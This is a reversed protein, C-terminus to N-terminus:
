PQLGTEVHGSTLAQLAIVAEWDEDRAASSSQHEPLAQNMSGLHRSRSGPPGGPIGVDIGTHRPVM